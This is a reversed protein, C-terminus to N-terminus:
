LITTSKFVTRQPCETIPVRIANYAKAASSVRGATYKQALVLQLILPNQQIINKEVVAQESRAPPHTPNCTPTVCYHTVCYHTPTVCYPTVCYHTPTVCYPTVCYHTPTVCYHTSTVCYHTVCYHTPTVCYHTVLLGEPADCPAVILETQMM